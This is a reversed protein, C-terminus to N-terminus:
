SERFRAPLLRRELERYGKTVWKAAFARYLLFLASVFIITGVIDLPYHHAAFIKALGVLLAFVTMAVGCKKNLAYLGLAASFCLLTHGSPFSSDNAHTLLIRIGPVVFLPRPEHVLLGLLEGLAVCIVMFVGTQVAVTRWRAQGRLLGLAYTALVVLPVIFLSWQILFIGLGDLVASRHVFGNFFLLISQNM